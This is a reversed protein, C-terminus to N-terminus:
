GIPVLVVVRLLQALAPCWFEDLLSMAFRVSAPKLAIEYKTVNNENEDNIDGYCIFLAIDQLDRYRDTM